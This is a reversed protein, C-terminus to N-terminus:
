IRIINLELQQGIKDMIRNVLQSSNPQYAFEWAGSRLDLDDVDEVSRKVVFSPQLSTPFDDVSYEPYVTDNLYNDSKVITRIPLLIFVFLAPVLIELITSFVARKQLAYNKWLLLALQKLDNLPEIFSRTAKESMSASSLISASNIRTNEDIREYNM